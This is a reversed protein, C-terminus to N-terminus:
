KRMLQQIRTQRDKEAMKESLWNDYERHIIEFYQMLKEPQDLAGGEAPLSKM